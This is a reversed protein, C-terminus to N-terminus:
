RSTGFMLDDTKSTHWFGMAHGVEHRITGPRTALGNCACATELYNISITGGQVGVNAPWLRQGTRESEALHHDAM